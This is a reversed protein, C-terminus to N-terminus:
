GIVVALSWTTFCPDERFVQSLITTIISSYITQSQAIRQFRRSVSSSVVSPWLTNFSKYLVCSEQPRKIRRRAVRKGRGEGPLLNDIKRLRGIHWRDLESPLPPLPHAHLWIVVGVHFGPGRYIMWCERRSTSVRSTGTHPPPPRWGRGWSGRRTSWRRWTTRFM